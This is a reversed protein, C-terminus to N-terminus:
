GTLARMKETLFDLLLRTKAPLPGANAVASIPLHPFRWGPLVRILRGDATENKVLISLVPTIGMGSLALKRAFSPNVVGFRGAIQVSAPKSGDNLTWTSGGFPEMVRVCQHHKLDEPQLPLGHKELYSPAAYLAIEFTALQRMTLESDPLTGTRICLDFRGGILDVPSSSTYIDISIEPYLHAFEILWDMGIRDVFTFPMSLRLKGSPRRTRARLEEHAVRLEEVAHEVRELYIQGDETLEVRRTTRNLLRLGLGAELQAIRRSLTAAPMGLIEAARAFNRARAVAVFLHIDRLAELSM